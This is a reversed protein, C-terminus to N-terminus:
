GDLSLASLRAILENSDRCNLKRRINDRHVAVTKKSIGITRGIETISVGKGIMGAVLRERRTLHVDGIVIADMGANAAADKAPSAAQTDRNRRRVVIERITSVLTALSSDKSVFEDAGAAAVVARYQRNPLSSYVVIISDPALKRIGRIADVNVTGRYVLDLIFVDAIRDLSDGALSDPNPCSGALHLDPHGRLLLSLGAEVIPHDDVLFLKTRHLASSGLELIAANSNMM